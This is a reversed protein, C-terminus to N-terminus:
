VHARGIQNDGNGLDLLAMSGPSAGASTIASGSHLAGTVANVTTQSVSGGPSGFPSTNPLRPSSGGNGIPIGSLPGDGGPASVSMTDTEVQSKSSSAAAGSGTGTSSGGAIFPGGLGIGPSGADAGPGRHGGGGSSVKVHLAFPSAEAVQASLTLAFVVFGSVLTVGGLQCAHLATRRFWGPTTYGM